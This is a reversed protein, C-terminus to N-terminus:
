WFTWGSVQYSPQCLLKLFENITMQYKSKIWLTYTMMVDSNMMDTPSGTFWESHISLYHEFIHCLGNM